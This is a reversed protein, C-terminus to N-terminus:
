NLENLQNHTYGSFAPAQMLSAVPMAGQAMSMALAATAGAVQQTNSPSGTVAAQHSIQSTLTSDLGYTSTRVDVYAPERLGRPPTCQAAGLGARCPM